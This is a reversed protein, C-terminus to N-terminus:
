KIGASVDIGKLLYRGFLLFLLFPLLLSIVTIAMLRPVHQGYQGKILALGLTITQMKKDSIVIQPWLYDNWNALFSTLGLVIMAPKVLPLMLRHFILFHGAGDMVAADELEKPISLFFQRLLFLGFVTPVGPLILAFRSNVIGLLNVTSYLPVLNIIGPIMMTSLLFYFLPERFSFEFRSLAYAALSCVTLVLVTYIVANIVSNSLWQTLNSQPDQFIYRYNDFTAQKPLLTLPWKVAEVETKFSLLVAWVLPFIWVAALVLLVITQTWQHRQKM